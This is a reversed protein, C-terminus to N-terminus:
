KSNGGGSGRLWLLSPATGLGSGKLRTGDYNAIPANSKFKHRETQIILMEDHTLM